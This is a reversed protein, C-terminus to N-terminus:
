KLRFAGPSSADGRGAASRPLTCAHRNIARRAGDAAADTGNAHSASLKKMLPLDGVAIVTCVVGALGLWIFLNTYIPMTAVRASDSFTTLVQQSTAPLSGYEPANVAALIGRLQNADQTPLVGIWQRFDEIQMQLAQPFLAGVQEIGNIHAVRSLDAMKNPISAFNAVVSGLYQSIGSAVYYAGMMFGGMRAPVYRAIMALGLGSVLLEGLSYLCYGWIMVWSSTRATWRLTDPPVTFSSVSRWRRLGWAFKAAVSLDRATRAWAHHVHWALVPSLLMIWIPNLAQYQAPSWNFLQMGFLTQVGYGRQAARVAELSTSMQQYFIFFFITQVVLVLAAIM